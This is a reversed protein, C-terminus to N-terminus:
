RMVLIGSESLSWTNRTELIDTHDKDRQEIEANLDGKNNWIELCSRHTTKLLQHPHWNIKGYEGEGRLVLPPSVDSETWDGVRHEGRLLIM